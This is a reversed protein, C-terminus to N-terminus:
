FKAQSNVVIAFVVLQKTIQGGHEEKWQWVKQLFRERGLVHRTLQQTKMLMKEVVVQLILSL